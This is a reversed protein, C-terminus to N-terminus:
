QIHFRFSVPSRLGGIGEGTNLLEFRVEPLDGVIQAGVGFRADFSYKMGMM